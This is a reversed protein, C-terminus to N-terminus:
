DMCDDLSGIRRSLEVAAGHVATSDDSALLDLVWRSQGVVAVVQRECPNCEGADPSGTIGEGMCGCALMVLIM